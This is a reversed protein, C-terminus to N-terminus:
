TTTEGMPLRRNACESRMAVLRELVSIRLRRANEYADMPSGQLIVELADRAFEHGILHGLLESDDFRKLEALDLEIQQKLHKGM